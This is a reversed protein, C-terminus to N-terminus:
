KKSRQLASYFKKLNSTAFMRSVNDPYMLDKKGALVLYIERKRKDLAEPTDAFPQSHFLCYGSLSDPFMEAFALAAYGGLSHGALFVKKIGIGALLEKIIKAILEMSTVEGFIDSKGHGPIDPIIVRFEKSLKGAFSEWIESTELYGHLLVITEGSGIDKYFIKGDNFRFFKEM